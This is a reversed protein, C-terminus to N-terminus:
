LKLKNEYAEKIEKNKPNDFYAITQIINAGIFEGTSSSIQQNYSSRILDGKAILQEIFSKAILQKDDCFKNFKIPEANSFGDLQMEQEDVSKSLYVLVPYNKCLVYQIYVAKFKERNTLLDIYNKKANISAKHEREIRVKERNEDKIYFRISKNSYGLRVDKAVDNYNLCHRYILYQEVNIPRGIKYKVSELKIIAAIKENVAKILANNNSTDANDFNLEISEEYPKVLKEYDSSKFYTFSCDLEKGLVDIKVSINNFWQQIKEVFNQNNASVGVLTPMYVSMEDISSSLKQVSSISAGLSDIRNDLVKSNKIRYFSNNILNSMPMITIKKIITVPNDNLPKTSVDSTNTKTTNEM